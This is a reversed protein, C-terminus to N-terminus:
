LLDLAVRETSSTWTRQFTGVGNGHMGRTLIEDYLFPLLQRRCSPGRLHRMAQRELTRAQDTSLGLSNGTDEVTLREWYRARIVAAQKEELDDVLPRIVAKLQNQCFQETIDQEMDMGDSIQNGLTTENGNEDQMPADLSATLGMEATKALGRVNERTVGLLGAIESESAERGYRSYFEDCLKRYKRVRERLGAPIHVLSANESAYRQISQQIWFAAYSLFSVGEDRRWHDVADTLGLYGEQMLDEYNTGMSYKRALKAIFGCNQEYLQLMNEAVGIHDQILVVLQENTLKAKEGM